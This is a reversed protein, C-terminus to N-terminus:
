RAPHAADDGRAAEFQAKYRFVVDPPLADILEERLADPEIELGCLHGNWNTGALVEDSQMGPLWRYLFDFLSIPAPVHDPFHAEARRAYPGDSWFVLVDRRPESNSDCSAYGSQGKLGWVVEGAVAREVFRRHNEMSDAELQISMLPSGVGPPGLPGLAVDMKRGPSPSGLSGLFGSAGPVMRPSRDSCEEHPLSAQSSGASQLNGLPGM